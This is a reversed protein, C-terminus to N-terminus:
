SGTFLALFPFAKTLLFFLLSFGIWLGFILIFYKGTTPSKFLKAYAISIVAYMWITFIDVKALLWGLFTTKDSDMLSALSLDELGKEMSLGIIAILIWQVVAIYFTLGYGALANSYTGDGKLIFKVCAFYVGAILFLFIFLGATSGVVNMIGFGGMQEEMGERISEIQQDAQERTMQGSDVAADFQSQVIEVKKDIAAYKINPNSMLLYQAVNLVIILIITPILWDVVKSKEYAMKSFIAGPEAFVGVLKDTHSLELEEEEDVEPEVDPIEQDKLEDSM